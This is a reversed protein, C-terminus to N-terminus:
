KGAKIVVRDLEKGNNDMVKVMLQDSKKEVLLCGTVAGTLVPFPAMFTQLYNERAKRLTFIKKQGPLAKIYYHTHGALMLDIKALDKGLSLFMERTRPTGGIKNDLCPIHNVLVRFSANRFEPTRVLNQLFLTQDRHYTNDHVEDGDSDCYIFCVGKHFFAGYAKNKQLSTLEFFSDVAGGRYEHNGRMYIVPKNQYLKIVPELYSNYQTARGPVASILDGALFLLDTKQVDSRSLVKELNWSRNHIDSTVAFSFDAEKGSNTRFSFIKESVPLKYEYVTDEALDKLLVSHIKKNRSTVGSLTDAPLVKFQGAGKKRFLIKGDCLGYTEWRVAASNKRVDLLWPGHLIEDAPTYIRLTGFHDVDHGWRVDTWSLLKKAKTRYRLLNFLMTNNKMHGLASRKVAVEITWLNKSANVAYRYDGERLGEDYKKGNSGIVIQCYWDPFTLNGLFIEVNDNAWISGTLPTKHVGKPDHCSIGIYLHEADLFLRAETRVQSAKANKRFVMFDSFLAANKWSNETLKGDLVVKQKQLFDPVDATKIKKYEQASLLTCLMCFSLVQFVIKRKYM